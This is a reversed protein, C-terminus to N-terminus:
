KRKRRYWEFTQDIGKEFSYQPEFGLVSKARRIDAVSELIDGSRPSEYQAAMTLDAKQCVVDWLRNISVSRGTGVNISKGAAHDVAAALLNARVVDKVFIFDRSQNGDGYITAPSKSVAQSMFISIVGSYSSSPDQRPGFVNFLRLSTAKMGYLMNFVRAYYEGSLKQVAYPSLPEPNMEEQKPLRPDDGYVASSSTFVVREVNNRRAAEFIHLTGLDNIQASEIPQAVTQPVSVMAALHFIAERGRASDEVTRLDRIDGKCFSVRNKVSNLNSLDGSSLNDLVTVQCEETVLAETLHSGIFGAGGTVLVKKFPLTM